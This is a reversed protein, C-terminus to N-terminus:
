GSFFVRLTHIKYNRSLLTWFTNSFLFFGTLTTALTHWIAPFSGLSLLTWHGLNHSPAQSPPGNQFLSKKPGCNQLTKRIKQSVLSNSTQTWMFPRRNDPFEKPLAARQQGRTAITPFSVTSRDKTSFHETEWFHRWFCPLFPFGAFEPPQGPRGDNRSHISKLSLRGHTVQKHGLGTLPPRPSRQLLVTVRHMSSTLTGSYAHM